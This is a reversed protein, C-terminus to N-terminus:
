AALLSTLVHKIDAFPVRGDGDTDLIAFVHSLLAHRRGRLSIHFPASAFDAAGQGPARPDPGAGLGVFPGERDALLLDDLTVYDKDGALAKFCDWASPLSVSCLMKGGRAEAENLGGMFLAEEHEACTQVFSLFTREDIGEGGASNLEGTCRGTDKHAFLGSFLSPSPRYGFLVYFSEVCARKGLYRPPAPASASASAPAPILASTHVVDGSRSGAPVPVSLVTFLEKAYDTFEGMNRFM